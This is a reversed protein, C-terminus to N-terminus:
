RSSAGGVTDAMQAGRRGMPLEAGTTTDVTTQHEMEANLEAGLLVACTSLWIWTMLAIAAGLSGYTKNYDAFNSLYASLGVSVLICLLAAVASGWTVWRWKADARSPGFRYIAALGLTLAAFMALWRLVGLASAMEPPLRMAAIVAPALTVIFLAFLVVVIAALTMGISLMNLRLFSRKEIEEYAINLGDIIAKMGANAGWVAIALGILLKVTLASNDESLIRAIQEEVIQFTGAPLMFSMAFLHDRVTAPDAFLGYLSVLVTVTPFLSLLSYFTIGAAITPLRDDMAEHYTRLLIDKWGKAPIDSPVRAARGRGDSWFRNSTTSTSPVDKRTPAFALM